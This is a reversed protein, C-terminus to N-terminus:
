LLAWLLLGAIVAALTAGSVHDRVWAGVARLTRGVWRKEDRLFGAAVFKGRNTLWVIERVREACEAVVLETVAEDVMASTLPLERTLDNVNSSDQNEFRYLQYLHRLVKRADATLNHDSM